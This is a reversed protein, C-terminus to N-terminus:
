FPLLWQLIRGCHMYQKFFSRLPRAMLTRLLQLLLSLSVCLCVLLRAPLCTDALSLSLPTSVQSAVSLIILYRCNKERKQMQLFIEKWRRRRRETGAQYHRQLELAEFTTESQRLQSERAHPSRSFRVTAMSTTWPHLSRWSHSRWLLKGTWSSHRRSPDICMPAWGQSTAAAAHAIWHPASCCCAHLSCCSQYYDRRRQEQMAQRVVETKLTQRWLDFEHKDDATALDVPWHSVKLSIEKRKRLKRCIYGSSYKGRAQGTDDEEERWDMLMMLRCRANLNKNYLTFHCWAPFGHIRRQTISDVQCLDLAAKITVCEHSSHIHIQEL